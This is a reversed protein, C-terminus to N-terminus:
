LLGLVKEGWLWIKEGLFITVLTAGSLFPGFPIHEGFKKKRLLILIVGILGGTLFALYFAVLIKPFGLILGMLLALKVDGLGMGKGKTILHLFWFFGSFVLGSILFILFQSIPFNFFNFILSIIIAPFVIEDPITQYLLDSVFVAILVYVIILNFILYQWGGSSFFNFVMLTLVASILEVLPYLWSIPSHCYRCKGRLIAFSLLPINDYWALQHKCKPCISRGWIPSLGHNVRWVVCNIFSGFTLGLFFLTFVLFWFM